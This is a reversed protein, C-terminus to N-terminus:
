NKEKLLLLQSFFAFIMFLHYESNISSYRLLQVYANLCVICDLTEILKLYQSFLNVLAVISVRIYM